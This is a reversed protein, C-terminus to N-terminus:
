ASCTRQHAKRPRPGAALFFPKFYTPKEQKLPEPKFSKRDWGSPPEWDKLYNIKDKRAFRVQKLSSVQFKSHPQATQQIVTTSSTHSSSTTSLHIVIPQKPSNLTFTTGYPTSVHMIVPPALIASNQELNGSTGTRRTQAELIVENNAMEGIRKAENNRGGKQKQEKEEVIVFSPPKRRIQLASASKKIIKGVRLPGTNALCNQLQGKLDDQRDQTISSRESFFAYSKAKQLRRESKTAQPHNVTFTEHSYKHPVLLMDLSEYSQTLPGDLALTRQPFPRFSKFYSSFRM